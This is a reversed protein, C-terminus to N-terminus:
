VLGCTGEFSIRRFGTTQLTLMWSEASSTSPSPLSKAMSILKGLKDLHPCFMESVCFPSFYDQVAGLQAILTSTRQVRGQNCPPKTDGPLLEVGVGQARHIQLFWNWMGVCRGNEQFHARQRLPERSAAWLFIEDFACPGQLVNERCSSFGM